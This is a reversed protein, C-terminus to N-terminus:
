EGLVEVVPVDQFGAVLDPGSKDLGSVELEDVDFRVCVYFPGSWGTPSGSLVLGTNLDVSGGGDLVVTADLKTVTRDFTYAGSTYRVVAQGAVFKGQATTAVNHRPDRLKWSHARGGVIQFFQDIQEWIARQRANYRLVFRALTGDWNQNRAERGSDTRLVDTSFGAGSQWQVDVGTPLLMDKFAM